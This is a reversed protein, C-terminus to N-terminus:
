LLMTQPVSALLYKFPSVFNFLATHVMVQVLIDKHTVLNFLFDFVEQSLFSIVPLVALVHYCATFYM